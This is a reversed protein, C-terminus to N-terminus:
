LRPHLIQHYHRGPGKESPGEHHARKRGGTDQPWGESQTVGFAGQAPLVGLDFVLDYNSQDDIEEGYILCVAGAM